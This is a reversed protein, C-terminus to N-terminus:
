CRSFFDMTGYPVFYEEEEEKKRNYYKEMLEPLIASPAISAIYVMIKFHYNFYYVLYDLNIHM